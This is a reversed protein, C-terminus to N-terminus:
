LSAPPGRDFRVASLSAITIFHSLASLSSSQSGVIIGFARVPPALHLGQLAALALPAYTCKNAASFAPTKSDGGLMQGMCHHEGNALCCIPVSSAATEGAPLPAALSAVLLLSFVGRLFRRMFETLNNVCFLPFSLSYSLASATV